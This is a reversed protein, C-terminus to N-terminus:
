VARMASVIELRRIRFVPYLGALALCLAICGPGLLLTAWTLSPYLTADLGFQKFVAEAEEFRIGTQQYYYSVVAGIALGAVIGLSMVLLSELWVLRGLLGPGVGLAMMMGFERTREMVTMLATNLLSLVIVLILVLYMAMASSIDLKIAKFLAPQMEQWDRLALDRSALYRRLAAPYAPLLEIEGGAVVLAHIEGEMSFTQEFRALPMQALQRDLPKLGSAFIGVVRLSDVALAGERGAGLLTLRDGPQLRLNKALGEGLVIEDTAASADPSLYRGQRINAPLSSFLPEKDAEVGTLQAGFSRQGSSLLAFGNARRALIAHPLSLKLERQLAPNLEFSAAMVPEALYAQRQIQAAGDLIGISGNVMARYSGLQMAPLFIVIACTSAVAAASLWTRRPQRWINRWALALLM